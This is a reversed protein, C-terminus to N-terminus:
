RLTYLYAAADRAEQETLGLEPMATKPKMSKPDLIWSVLNDPSNPFEGGIFTRRAWWDLPPGVTGDAGSIGPISHCKGCGFYGIIQKGRSSNGGTTIEYGGAIQGGMCGSMFATAILIVLSSLARHLCM